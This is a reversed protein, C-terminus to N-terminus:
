YEKFNFTMLKQGFKKFQICLYLNEHGYVIFWKKIYLIPYFVLNKGFGCVGFLNKGKIEVHREYLRQNLTGWWGVSDGILGYM